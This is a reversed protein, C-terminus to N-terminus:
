MSAAHQHLERSWEKAQIGPDSDCVRSQAAGYQRSVGAQDYHEKM